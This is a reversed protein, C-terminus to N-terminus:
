PKDLKLKQWMWLGSGPSEKSKSLDHDGNLSEMKGISIQTRTM